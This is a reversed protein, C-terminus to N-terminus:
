SALSPTLRHLRWLWIFLRGDADAFYDRDLYRQVSDKTLVVLEEETPLDPLALDRRSQLLAQAQTVVGQAVHGNYNAIAAETEIYKAALDVDIAYALRAYRKEIHWRQEKFLQALTTIRRLDKDHYALIFGTADVTSVAERALRWTYGQKDWKNFTVIAETTSQESVLLWSAQNILIRVEGSSEDTYKLEDLVKADSTPGIAWPGADEIVGYWPYSYSCPPPFPLPQKGELLRAFLASKSNGVGGSMMHSFKGMLAKIQDDTEAGESKYFEREACTMNAFDDAQNKAQIEAYGSLASDWNQTQEPTLNKEDFFQPM